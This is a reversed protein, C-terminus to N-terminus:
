SFYNFGDDDVEQPKDLTPAKIASKPSTNSKSKSSVKSSSKTSVNSNDVLDDSLLGYILKIQLEVTKIVM